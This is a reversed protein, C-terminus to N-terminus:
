MELMFTVPGDNLLSVKMDAGFQGTEVHAHRERLLELFHAFQGDAQAPPAASSFGPRLGKRTDAALTFQSIALLGGNIDRLSLNMKDDADPFIRYCLLKDAMRKLIDDTDHKEIGTLALIGQDIKGLIKGEVAVSAHAVRQLLVKMPLGATFHNVCSFILNHTTGHISTKAHM